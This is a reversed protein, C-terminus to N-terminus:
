LPYFPAIYVRSKDVLYRKIINNRGLESDAIIAMARKLSKRIRDRREFIRNQLSLFEPEDRHCLDWITIIFNLNELYNAWNSPSLFYVLDIQKDLLYKEFKNFGM